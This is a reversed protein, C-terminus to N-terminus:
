SGAVGYIASGLEPNRANKAANRVGWESFIVLLAPSISFRCKPMAKKLFSVEILGSHANALNSLLM